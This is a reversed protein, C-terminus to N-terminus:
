IRNSLNEAILRAASSLSEAKIPDTNAWNKSFDMDSLTILLGALTHILTDPAEGPTKGPEFHLTDFRCREANWCNAAVEETSAAPGRAGCGCCEVVYTGEQRRTMTFEIGCCFPCNTLEVPITPAPVTSKRKAM